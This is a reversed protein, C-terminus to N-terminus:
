EHKDDAEDNSSRMIVEAKLLVLLDKWGNAKQVDNDSNSCYNDLEKVVTLLTIDNFTTYHNQIFRRVAESNESTNALEYRLAGTVVSGFDDDYESVFWSFPCLVYKDKGDETIVFGVNEEDIRKMLEDLKEGFQSQEVREMESMPQMLKTNRM